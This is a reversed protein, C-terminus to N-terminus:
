CGKTNGGLVRTKVGKALGFFCFCRLKGNLFWKCQEAYPKTTIEVWKVQQEKNVKSM